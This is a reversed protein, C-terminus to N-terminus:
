FMVVCYLTCGVGYVIGGNAIGGSVGRRVDIRWLLLLSGRNMSKKRRM